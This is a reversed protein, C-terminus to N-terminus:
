GRGASRPMRRRTQEIQDRLQAATVRGAALTGLGGAESVEAVLAPTTWGGAMPAQVIAHAIRFRDSLVSRLTL